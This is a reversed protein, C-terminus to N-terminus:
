WKEDGPWQAAVVDGKEVDEGKLSNALQNVPNEYYTTMEAVLKDLDVSKPGVQLLINMYNRGFFTMFYQRAKQVFFHAPSSIASVFVEMSEEGKAQKLEEFDGKTKAQEAASEDGDATLFLQHHQQKPKM